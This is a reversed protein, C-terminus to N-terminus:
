PYKVEFSHKLVEEDMASKNWETADNYHIPQRLLRFRGKQYYRGGRKDPFKAKFPAALRSNRPSHIARVIGGEVSWKTPSEEDFEDAHSFDTYSALIFHLNSYLDLRSQAFAPCSM